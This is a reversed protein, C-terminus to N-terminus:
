QHPSSHFYSYINKPNSLGPPSCKLLSNIIESLSLMIIIELTRYVQRVVDPPFGGEVQVPLTVGKGEDELLIMVIIVININVDKCKDELIIMIMIDM